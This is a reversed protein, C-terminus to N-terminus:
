APSALARGVVGATMLDLHAAGGNKFLTIDQARPMPCRRQCLDYLDGLIDSRAIVGRALPGTFEGSKELASPDDVYLRARQLLMERRCRSRMNLAVKLQM